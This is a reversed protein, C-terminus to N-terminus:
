ASYRKGCLKERGTKNQGCGELLALATWFFPATICMSFGFFAQICYCLAAGGLMAAAPGTPGEKIWKKALNALLALYVALAFVGQHYLINLYENHAVDIQSIIEHQLGEHYRTFPELGGYLMTDPGTGLLFHDPIRILTEKWIHLRGSGFARDFNGHLIEHIEHLMGGGTDVAYCIAIALAASAFLLWALRKRGKAGIPLVVPLSIIGGVFVGVLGALVSMKLLVALSLALPIALLLRHKGPLRLLGIWMIPIVICLFSAVLDVNGITGLYAGSYEIYAGAYSHGEPYLLFPNQGALQILCLICFLATVTSAIYLLHRTPKGFYSVLIFCLGYITLTLAGEYRSVGVVTEPFYPSLVASVWSILVYTLVFKQPLGSRKLFVAKPRLEGIVFLEAAFLGMLLIYGGCLVLFLHYKANLIDQYGRSGCYFLYVTWLLILFVTTLASFININQKM